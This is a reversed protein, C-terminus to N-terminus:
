YSYSTKVFPALWIKENIDVCRFETNNIRTNFKLHHHGFFWRKPQHIELMQDFALTMGYPKYPYGNPHKLKIIKNCVAAPADHSIVTDPKVQEYLAIVKNLQEYSLEEDPWWDVGITRDSIDTSRAGSIFFIDNYVGFDGLYNPKSKCVEPCDHNGRIFKVNPMLNRKRDKQNDFLGYDGLQIITDQPHKTAFKNLPAYLGHLDGALYISM